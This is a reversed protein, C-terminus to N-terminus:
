FIGNIYILPEERLNIWVINQIEPEDQLVALIVNKMGGLTPQAVGYVNWNPVRSFYFFQFVKGFIPHAKLLRARKRCFGSIM